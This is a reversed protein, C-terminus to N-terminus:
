EIRRIELGDWWINETGGVDPGDVRTRIYGGTTITRRVTTKVWSGNPITINNTSLDTWGGTEPGEFLFLTGNSSVDSTSWVSVEWVEGVNIPAINHTDGFSSIYPDTGGDLVMKTPVGGYPSSTVSPDREITCANNNVVDGWFLFTDDSYPFINEEVALEGVYVRLPSQPTTPWIATPAGTMASSAIAAFTGVDGGAWSSGALAAGGTTLGAGKFEGDIWLRVRGPTVQFDWVLTHTQDDKPFDTISLSARDVTSPSIASGDGAAVTFTNADSFGVWCGYVGGGQEYLVAPSPTSPLIMDCAFTVNSGRDGASMAISNSATVSYDETLGVEPDHPPVVVSQPSFSALVNLVGTM